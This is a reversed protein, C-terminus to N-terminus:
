KNKSTLRNISRITFFLKAWFAATLFAEQKVAPAVYYEYHADIVHIAVEVLTPDENSAVSYPTPIQFELSTTNSVLEIPRAVDEALGGFSDVIVEDLEVGDSSLIFDMQDSRIEASFSEFGIYNVVLTECDAKKM